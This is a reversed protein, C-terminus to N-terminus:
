LQKFLLEFVSYQHILINNFSVSAHKWIRDIRRKQTEAHQDQENPTRYQSNTSWSCRCLNSDYGHVARKDIQQFQIVM